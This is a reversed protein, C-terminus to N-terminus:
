PSNVVTFVGNNKWRVQLVRQYVFFHEPCHKANEFGIPANKSTAQSKGSSPRVEGCSPRSELFHAFGFRQGAIRTNAQTKM